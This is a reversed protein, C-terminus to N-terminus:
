EPSLAEPPGGPLRDRDHPAEFDPAPGVPVLGKPNLDTHSRYYHRKIHDVNVTGAIGPLQYLDRTHGWLNPYDVVRAVNCKFHCNYVEDFRVLTAFLRLDALTPRDGVLYRQDDLVAEWHDLADFLEAVAREHADQSDAFGARYVGNNIPDYISEVVRDIEERHGEPYLDVGNGVERFASALFEMIEISENNVITGERRDWLVPVTVRGTYDPDAAVYVERLYDSGLISDATCGEKEPTFEWGDDQRHPDVVDLTIADEIGLLARVMAAGHAWPCARAVYLHYRGAEPQFRADPDDRVRDRFTTESRQFEGDEDTYERADTTWEGDVLMNM